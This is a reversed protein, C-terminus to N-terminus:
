PAPTAPGNAERVLRAIEDDDVERPQPYHSQRAILHAPTALHVVRDAREGLDRIVGAPGVPLAVIIERAGRGRLSAVVGRLTTGTSAADSVVIVRRGSVDQQPHGGRYLAGRRRVDELGQAVVGRLREPLPASGDAAANLAVYDPEVLVGATHAPQAPDSLTQIALPEFPAGLARAVELGVLIGGRSVGVVLVDPGAYPQLPAALARGAAQRSEEGQREM